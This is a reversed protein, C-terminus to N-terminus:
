LADSRALAEISMQRASSRAAEVEGRNLLVLQQKQPDLCGEPVDLNHASMLYFSLSLRCPMLLRDDKMGYEASIAARREPPLAQNPAIVLNIQHAWEFDLAPDIISPSL